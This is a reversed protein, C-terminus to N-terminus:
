RHRRSRSARLVPLMTRCCMRWRCRVIMGGVSGSVALGGNLYIAVTGAASRTYVVHTLETTLSGVATATEPTGNNTTATTRLRMVYRDDGANYVGQGLTFNRNNPDASCTVMRAPGNQALSASELWAEVTLADTSLAADILKTAPGASRVITATDLSLGGGPLWTVAGLDDITLDLPSGIGSVDAVVNGSGTAFDYLAVLGATVRASANPDNINFAVAPSDTSDADNDTARAVVSHLGATGGTWSYEWPEANVTAVVVGDVLFEVQVVTGDSDSADAALPVPDGLQYVAGNVPSTVSVSPLQNPASQVTVTFAQNDSGESNTATVTVDYDGITAPTWTILGSVADITMDTPAQTLAYSPAPYGSAEVDYSYPLTVTATTVATSTIVPAAPTADVTITFAQSDMGESNTATVTVDYDGITAPTWTILGSVADITMGAPMTTLAFLPAPYGSAEVDYSYVVGITATTVATSTIV